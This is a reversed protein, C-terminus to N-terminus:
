AAPQNTWAPTIHMLCASTWVSMHGDSSALSPLERGAYSSSRRFSLILRRTTTQRQVDVKWAMWRVSDCKEEM